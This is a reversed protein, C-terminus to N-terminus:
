LEMGIILRAIMPMGRGDRETATTGPGCVAQLDVVAGPEGDDGPRAVAPHLVTPWLALVDV